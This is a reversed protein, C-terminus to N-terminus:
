LCSTYKINGTINLIKLSTNQTIWGNNVDLCELFCQYPGEDKSPEVNSSNIRISLYLLSVNSVLSNVTVGSRNTVDTNCFKDKDLVSVVVEDSKKLFYRNIKKIQYCDVACRIEIYGKDCDTLLTKNIDLSILAM